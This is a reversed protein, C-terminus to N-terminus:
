VIWIRGESDKFKIVGNDQYLFGLGPAPGAESAAQFLSKGCVVCKPNKENVVTMLEFHCKHPFMKEWIEKIM